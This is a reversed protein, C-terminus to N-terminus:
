CSFRTQQTHGQAVEVMAGGKVGHGPFELSIQEAPGFGSGGLNGIIYTINPM